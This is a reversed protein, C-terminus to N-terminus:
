STSATFHKNVLEYSQVRARLDHVPTWLMLEDAGTEDALEALRRVVNEPTGVHQAGLDALV